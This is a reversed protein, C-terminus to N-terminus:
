GRIRRISQQRNQRRRKLYGPHHRLGSGEVCMEESKCSLYVKAMAINMQPIETAQNKGAFMRRAAAADRTKLSKQKGNLKDQVYFVGNRQFM